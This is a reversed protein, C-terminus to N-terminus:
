ISLCPNNPVLGNGPIIFVKFSPWATSYGLVNALGKHISNKEIGLNSLLPSNSLDWETVVSAFMLADAASLRRCSHTM